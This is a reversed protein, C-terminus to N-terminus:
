SRETLPGVTVTGRLTPHIECHFEFTGPAAFTYGFKGSPEVVGSDFLGSDSTFTHAVRDRNEFVVTEGATVSVQPDVYRVDDAAVTAAGEAKASSRGADSSRDRLVLAAVAAVLVAVVAIGLLLRSRAEAALPGSM